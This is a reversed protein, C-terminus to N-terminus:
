PADEGRQRRSISHLQQREQDTLAPLGHASVKALLRDLIEGDKAAQAEARAEAKEARHAQWRDWLGPGARRHIRPDTDLAPDYGPEQHGYDHLTGILCWIAMFLLLFDQRWLALALLLVASAFGLMVTAQGARRLGVMPWLLGRWLRRGDFPHCALLNAVAVLGSSFAVRSGIDGGILWGGLALLGSALPGAGASVTIAFANNPVLDANQDVLASALATTTRGGVLRTALVHAATHWLMVVLPVLPALALSLWGSHVQIAQILDFLMWVLLMFSLRWEVGAVRGLRLSWGFIDFFPNM